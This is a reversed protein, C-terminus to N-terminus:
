LIGARLLDKLMLIGVPRGDEVVPAEGIKKPYNEFFEVAEAALLGPPLTAPNRTMLDAATGETALRGKEFWRRLDGDSVLGALRGDASVVCAAGAGARTIARMTEMVSAAEGVCPLDEGTRMVDAVRLTLRRGLAGAPHFKAFDEASFGRAQMTAVALADSVAMMVTTSTTPALNHPCAEESVAVDLVLGAARGVTSDPRGTLALTRVGMSQALPLVRALEDSEGSYTYAALVDGERLTGLDGHLAESAHLFASPTGTSAFTASAKQAVIGSKGLGCCVVRGPCALFMEVAQAFEPGVRVAVERLAGAEQGIVQRVVDLIM